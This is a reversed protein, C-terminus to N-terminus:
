VDISKDESESKDFGSANVTIFVAELDQTRTLFGTWYDKTAIGIFFGRNCIFYILLLFSYFPVGWYLPIPLAGINIFFSSHTITGFATLGTFNGILLVIGLVLTFVNKNSYLCAGLLLMAVFNLNCEIDPTGTSLTVIVFVLLASPILQALYLAINIYHRYRTM